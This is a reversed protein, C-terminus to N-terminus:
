QMAASYFCILSIFVEKSIKELPAHEPHAPVVLESPCLSHPHFLIFSSQVRPYAYVLCEYYNM